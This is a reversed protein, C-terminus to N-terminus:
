AHPKPRHRTRWLGIGWITLGILTIATIGAGLVFSKPRFNFEISHSGADLLIARFAYNAQVIPVPNGHNAAEWDPFFLDSLFLYGPRDLTVDIKVRNASYENLAITHQGNPQDLAKGGEVIVTQTLDLDSHLLDFATEASDAVVSQYFLLVRPLAKTNLWVMVKEDNFVPALWQTDGPPETTDSVIYKIGLLNYAPSGRYGVSALYNAHRALQLPNYVGGASYLNNMQASSAQWQGTAEDIRNIYSNAQLYAITASNQYGKLPNNREIEVYQSTLFLESSVIGLVIWGVQWRWMLAGWTLLGFLLFIVIARVMQASHASNLQTHWQWLGIGGIVILALTLWSQWSLRRSEASIRELGAAGLLAVCFNMLVILRAPVQFPLALPAFIWRHVPTSGGLALLLFFIAGGILFSFTGKSKFNSPKAWWILLWPALGLYGYEVRQWSGWFEASGRGFFDPAIIGVLAQWTLSYNISEAYSFSGRRTYQNLAYTPVLTIAAVGIGIIGALTLMLLPRLNRTAVAIWVAYLGLFFAIFFSMQGHGALTSVGIMMGCVVAWERKGACARALTAVCWPLWAIVAILNLNGLHTIFLDSFMFPIAAFLASTPRFRGIQRACLYIGTGAWFLHFAASAELAVYSFRPWVLFLLLHFPYFIGAQNDAILPYGAYQHPNWLPIEGKQWSDAIFRYMPYLFSVADGGGRPLWFQQGWLPYFFLITLVALLGVAGVDDRRSRM